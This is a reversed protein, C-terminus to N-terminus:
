IIYNNVEHLIWFQESDNYIITFHMVKYYINRNKSVSIPKMKSNSPFNNRSVLERFTM